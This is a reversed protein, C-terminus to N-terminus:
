VGRDYEMVRARTSELVDRDNMLKEVCYRFEQALEQRSMGSTASNGLTNTYLERVQIFLVDEHDHRQFIEDLKNVIKTITDINNSFKLYLSEPVHEAEAV